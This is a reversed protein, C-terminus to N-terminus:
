TLTMADADRYVRDFYMEVFERSDGFSEAWLRKIEDKKSMYFSYARVVYLTQADPRM